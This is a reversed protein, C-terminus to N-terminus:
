APHRYLHTSQPLQSLKSHRAQAISIVHLMLLLPVAFTPILSMPLTTMIGTPVGQPDLLRSMTGLSIAAVLDLIGLIHWAIFSRQRELSASWKAALPATVGIAIDGLGAPLAFIAPLLGASYLALFTFGAIRWSHALTLARPSLSSAFSRFGASTAYWLFFIALPLLAALGLAIPPQSASTAFIHFASATTAVVFWAAVIGTTVKAYTANKMVSRRQQHKAAHDTGYTGSSKPV